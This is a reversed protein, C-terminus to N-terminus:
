LQAPHQVPLPIGDLQGGILQLGVVRQLVQDYIKSMQAASQLARQTSMMNVMEKVLNM